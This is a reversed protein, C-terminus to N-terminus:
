VATDAAAVSQAVSSTWGAEGPSPTIMVLHDPALDLTVGALGLM